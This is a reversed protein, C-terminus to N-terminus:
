PILFVSGEWVLGMEAAVMGRVIGKLVQTDRFLQTQGKVKIVLVVFSLFKEENDSTLGSQITGEPFASVTGETEHFMEDGITFILNSDPKQMCQLFLIDQAAGGRQGLCERM